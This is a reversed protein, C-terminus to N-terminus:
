ALLMFPVCFVVWWVTEKAKGNLGGSAGAASPAPPIGSYQSIFTSTSVTATGLTSGAVNASSPEPTPRTIPSASGRSASPNYSFPPVTPFGTSAGESPNASTPAIDTPSISGSASLSVGPINASTAVPSATTASLSPSPPVAVSTTIVTTPATPMAGFSSTPLPGPITINIVVVTTVTTTRVSISRQLIESGYFISSLLPLNITPSVQLAVAVETDTVISSVSSQIASSTGISSSPAAFASIEPQPSSPGPTSLQSVPYLNASSISTPANFVTKSVVVTVVLTHDPTFALTPSSYTLITPRSLPSYAFSPLQSSTNVAYPSSPNSSPFATPTSSNAATEYGKSSLCPSAQIPTPLRTGYLRSVDATTTKNLDHSRSLVSGLVGMPVTSLIWVSSSSRM